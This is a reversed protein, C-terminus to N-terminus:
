VSVRQRSNDLKGSLRGAEIGAGTAWGVFLGTLGISIAAWQGVLLAITMDALSVVLIAWRSHRWPILTSLMIAVYIGYYIFGWAVFPITAMLLIIEPQNVLPRMIFREVALALVGMVAITM